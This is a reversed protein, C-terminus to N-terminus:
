SLKNFVLNLVLLYFSKKYLSGKDDYYKDYYKAM